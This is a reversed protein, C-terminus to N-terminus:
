GGGGPEGGSRSPLRSAALMQAAIDRYPGVRLTSMDLYTKEKTNM